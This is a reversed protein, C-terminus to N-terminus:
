ELYTLTGDIVNTADGANDQAISIKMKQGEALDGCEYMYRADAAPLAITSTPSQAVFTAPDGSRTKSITVTFTALADDDLFFECVIDKKAGDFADLTFLDISAAKITTTANDVSTIGIRAAISNDVRDRLDEQREILSGDVNATIASSDYGTVTVDYLDPSGDYEAGLATGLAAFAANVSTRASGGISADMAAGAAMFYTALAAIQTDVATYDANNIHATFANTSLRNLVLRIKASLDTSAIDSMDDNTASADRQGVITLVSDDPDAPTAGVRELIAKCLAVLSDTAAPAANMAPIAEIDTGVTDRFNM